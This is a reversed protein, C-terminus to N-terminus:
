ALADVDIGFARLAASADDMGRMYDIQAAGQFDERWRVEVATVYRAWAKREADREALQALAEEYSPLATEAGDDAVAFIRVDTCDINLMACATENAEKATAFVPAVPGTTYGYDAGCVPDGDSSKGRVVYGNM